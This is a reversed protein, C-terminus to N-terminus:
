NWDNPIISCVASILENKLIERTNGGDHIECCHTIGHLVQIAVWFLDIRNTRSVKNNIMRHLDVKSSRLSFM